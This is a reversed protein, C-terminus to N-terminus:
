VKQQPNKSRKTVERNPHIPTCLQKLSPEVISPEEVELIGRQAVLTRLRSDLTWSSRGVCEHKRTYSPCAPDSSTNAVATASCIGFNPEFIATHYGTNTENTKLGM